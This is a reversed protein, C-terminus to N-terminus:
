PNPTENKLTEVDTKITEVDSQLREIEDLRANVFAVLREFLALQEAGTTSAREVDTWEFQEPM